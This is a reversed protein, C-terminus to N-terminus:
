PFPLFTYRDRGNKKSMYLAEDAKKIYDSGGRTHEAFGSTVGISVTVYKAAENEEHPIAADRINQLLRNAVKHAGRENCLPLVVVFEEGGYRAVFDEKRFLTQAFIGAITKLCNDGKGHGYTDNYKKFFDVDIMLVSLIGESRSITGIVQKINEEIYRRNYIGTLVDINAMTEFVGRMRKLENNNQIIFFIIFSLIVGAIIIIINEPYSYWKPVPFVRLYWNGDDSIPIPQEIFGGSSNSSGMHYAIIEKENTDPIIKFLEFSLGKSSFIELEGIDDLNNIQLSKERVLQELTLKKVNTSNIISFCILVSCLILAIGLSINAVISLGRSKKGDSGDKM